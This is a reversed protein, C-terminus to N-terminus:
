VLYIPGRTATTDRKGIEAIVEALEKRLQDPNQDYRANRGSASGAATPQTLRDELAQLLKDRKATLQETTLHSYIGM